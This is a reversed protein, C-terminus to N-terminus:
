GQLGRVATDIAEDILRERNVWPFKPRAILLSTMGHM